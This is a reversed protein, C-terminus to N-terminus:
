SLFIINAIVKEYFQDSDPLWQYTKSNPRIGMVAEKMTLQKNQAFLFSGILATLGIIIKNM